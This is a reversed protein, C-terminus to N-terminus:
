RFSSGKGGHLSLTPILHSDVLSGFKYAGGYQQFPQPVTLHTAPPEGQSRATSPAAVQHVGPTAWMGDSPPVYAQCPYVGFLQLECVGFASGEYTFM